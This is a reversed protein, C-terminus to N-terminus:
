RVKAKLEEPWNEVIGLTANSEIGGDGFNQFSVAQLIRDGEPSITFNALDSIDINIGALVVEPQTFLLAGTTTDTSVGVKMVGGDISGVEGNRAFYLDGSASWVPDYSPEVSVQWLGGEVNPYPRVYISHSGAESAAYSIWRGNPSVSPSLLHAGEEILAQKVWVGDAFTLSNIIAGSNTGELFLLRNEGAVEHQPRAQGEYIIEAQGTGDANVLGINGRRAGVADASDLYYLRASDASWIPRSSRGGFTRRALNESAIDYVWVDSGREGDFVSVAIKSGDPSIQPNKYAYEPADLVVRSGDDASWWTLTSGFYGQAQSERLFVLRGTNSIGYASFNAGPPLAGGLIEDVNSELLVEEGTIANTELDYAAAWLDAERAFVVHGSDVYRPSHGNAIHNKTEGTDLDLTNIGATNGYIVTNSNPLRRIIGFNLIGATSDIKGVVEIISGSDSVLALDGNPQMMLLESNTYWGAPTPAPSLQRYNSGNSRMMGIGFPSMLLVKDGDPSIFPMGGQAPELDLKTVSGSELDVVTQYGVSTIGDELVDFRLLHVQTGDPSIDLMGRVGAAIRPMAWPLYFNTRFVPAAVSAIPQTTEALQTPPAAATFRDAIQVGAMLLVIGLIAYNIPQVKTLPSTPSSSVASDPKVGEPTIEYAWAAVLTPLFGLFLLFTFTQNVWAPAEFTPLVTGSIQILLWAVVAYVAAVRFVKRKQLERFLNGM